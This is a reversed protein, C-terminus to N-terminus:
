LGWALIVYAVPGCGCGRVSCNCDCGGCFQCSMKSQTSVSQLGTEYKLSQKSNCLLVNVVVEIVVVVIVAVVTVNVVTVVVATQAIVAVVTVVVVKVFVAIVVAVALTVVGLIVATGVTAWAVIATARLATAAATMTRSVTISKAINGPENRATSPACLVLLAACIRINRAFIVLSAPCFCM